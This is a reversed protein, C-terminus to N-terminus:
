YNYHQLSGCLIKYSFNFFSFGKVIIITINKLFFIQWLFKFCEMIVLINKRYMRVNEFYKSM